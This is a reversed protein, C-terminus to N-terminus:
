KSSMKEKKCKERDGALLLRLKGLFSLSGCALIIDGPQAMLKSLEIAEECSGTQSVNPNVQSVAKALEYAPLARVSPPTLTFIMSARPALIRVVKEYEKDALVGMILILNGGSLNGDSGAKQNKIRMYEDITEALRVAADENHAGDLIFVPKGPIIEFRGPWKAELIGTRIADDSIGYGMKSLTRAAEIALAANDVQYLGLLMSKLKKLKTGHNSPSYDFCLGTATLRINEANRSDAVIFDSQLANVGGAAFPESLEKVNVAKYESRLEEMVCDAQRCTVVSAGKKIIGAKNHAIQALTNGLFQMHDMSISAFVCLRTNSILNTADLRGGMGAELICLEAKKQKAFLLFLATEMEFVTPHPLGERVMEESQDAVQELLSAFLEKSIKKGDYVFRERYDYVAPSTYVACKVHAAHLISSIFATTSGKGNTGAVHVFTLEDQPNGLRNCLESVSLLGPVSGLSAKDDLYDLAKQYNM